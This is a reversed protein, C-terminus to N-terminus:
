VVLHAQLQMDYSRFLDSLYLRGGRQEIAAKIAFLAAYTDTTCRAMREPLLIRTGSKEYVSPMEIHVLPTKM